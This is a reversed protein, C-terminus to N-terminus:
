SIVNEKLVNEKLVTEINTDKVKKSIVNYQKKFDAQKASMLMKTNTALVKTNVYQGYVGLGILAPMGVSVALNTGKKLGSKIDAGISKNVLNFEPGKIGSKKANEDYYFEKGKLKRTYSGGEGGTLERYVKDKNKTVLGGKVNKEFQEINKNRMSEAASGFPDRLYLKEGLTQVKGLVKSVPNTADRAVKEQIKIRDQRREYRTNWRNIKRLKRKGANTLTGDYNQYRRVGWKQGLIGHHALYNNDSFESHALYKEYYPNYNWMLNDKGGGIKIM